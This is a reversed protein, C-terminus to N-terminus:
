KACVGSRTPRQTTYPDSSDIGLHSGLRSHRTQKGMLRGCGHKHRGDESAIVLGRADTRTVSEVLRPRDEM